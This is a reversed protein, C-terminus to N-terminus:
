EDAEGKRDTSARGETTEPHRWKGARIEAAIQDRTLANPIPIAELWDAIANATRQEVEEAITPGTSPPRHVIVEPEGSEFLADRVEDMLMEAVMCDDKHGRSRRCGPCRAM